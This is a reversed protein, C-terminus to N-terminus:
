LGDDRNRDTIAGVTSFRFAKRPVHEFFDTGLIPWADDAHAFRAGADVGRAVDSTFLKGLEVQRNTAGDADRPAQLIRQCLQHLEVGLADPDALILVVHELWKQRLLQVLHHLAAHVAHAHLQVRGAGRQQRPDGPQAGAQGLADDCVAVFFARELAAAREQLYGAQAWLRELLRRAEHTHATPLVREVGGRHVRLAVREHLPHRGVSTTVCQRSLM